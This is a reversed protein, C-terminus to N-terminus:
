AAGAKGVKEDAVRKGDKKAVNKHEKVPHAEVWEEVIGPLVGVADDRENTMDDDARADEIEEAPATQEQSLSEGVEKGAGDARVKEVSLV